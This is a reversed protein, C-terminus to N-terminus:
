RRTLCTYVASWPDREVSVIKTTVGEVTISDKELPVIGGPLSTGLVAVIRDAQEVITGAIQTRTTRTAFARIPYSTSTTQPGASKAGTMRAGTIAVRILTASKPAGSAELKRAVLAPTLRRM